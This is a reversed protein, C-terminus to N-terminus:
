ECIKITAIAEPAKKTKEDYVIEFRVKTRNQKLALLAAFNVQKSLDSDISYMREADVLFAPHVKRPKLNRRQLLCSPNGGNDKCALELSSFPISKGVEGKALSVHVGCATLAKSVTVLPDPFGSDNEVFLVGSWEKEEKKESIKYPSIPDIKIKLDSGEFEISKVIGETHFKEM